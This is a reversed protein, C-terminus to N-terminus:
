HPSEEKVERGHNAFFTGAALHLHTRAFHENVLEVGNLVGLAISPVSSPNQHGVEPNDPM